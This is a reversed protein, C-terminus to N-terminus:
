TQALIMLGGRYSRTDDLYGIVRITKGNYMCGRTLFEAAGFHPKGNRAETFFANVLKVNLGNIRLDLQRRNPLPDPFPQFFGVVAGTSQVLRLNDADLDSKSECRAVKKRLRQTLKLPSRTTPLPNPPSLCRVVVLVLWFREARCTTCSESERRIFALSLRGGTLWM